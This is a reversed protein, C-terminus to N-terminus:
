LPYLDPTSTFSRGNPLHWVLVGPSPQELRWGPAQKTRHCKRCAPGVGCECTRGGKGYALTHDDDAATAPRSCIPNSCTRQRIKVIHHLSDPIRYGPVQRAHTCTGAEIPEIKLRALWAALGAPDSRPPPPRRACGHGVARGKKDTVTLCWRTGPSQAIWDALEECSEATAPGFGAIDGPSRSAGLWTALPMSLNVSGRLPLTQPGPWPVGAGTGEPRDTGASPVGPGPIGPGPADPRPADPTPRDPSGSPPSTDQHGDAAPSSPDPTTEAPDAPPLFGHPNTGTLLGLFVAARLQPLTGAAGAAKLARAATDIRRDAALAGTLPLDRGCLGATGGSQEDFLEVRAQRAAKAARRRAAAPDAAIVARRLRRRLITTTLRPADEIILLEVAAALEADLLATEFAILEAKERDIRGAWLAATTAPLRSLAAAFDLLKQASYRTVALLIAAENDTHEIIRADGTAQRRRDLEATAAALAAAGRSELRRGALMVGAVEDDSLQDLGTERVEALAQALVPGPELQDLLGGSAFGPGGPGTGDHDTVDDLFPVPLPPSDTAAQEALLEDLDQPLQGLEFDAGMPPGTDPDVWMAAHEDPPEDAAAALCAALIQDQEAEQVATLLIPSPANTGAPGSRPSGAPVEDSNTM